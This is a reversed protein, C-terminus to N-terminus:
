ERTRNGGGGTKIPLLARFLMGFIRLIVVFIVVSKGIEISNLTTYRPGAEANSVRKGEAIKVRHLAQASNVPSLAKKKERPLRYGGGGV